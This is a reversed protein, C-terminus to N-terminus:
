GTSTAVYRGAAVELGAAEAAARVLDLVQDAREQTRADQDPIGWWDGVFTELTVLQVVEATRRLYSAHVSLEQVPLPTGDRLQGRRGVLTLRVLPELNPGRAQLEAVFESPQNFRVSVQATPAPCQDSATGVMM